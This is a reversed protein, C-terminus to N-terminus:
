IRCSTATPNFPEVHVYMIIDPNWRTRVTHEVRSAIDHGETVTIDPDVKIHVDIIASHGARRTKLNHLGRVGPVALIMLRIKEVEEPPLARELLENVSPRAIKIASVAIFIGILISVIPDLVRFKMGLFYAGSVGILTAVSSIADSRHHWANAALSSSGIEKGKAETMRFLWEKAVISVIAVIITWVDPRPLEHRHFFAIIADIGGWTIGVAVALLVFAIILSALTEYKGHGYPHDADASRYAVGVFILVIFDTGFDSLSHFGDAVLADSHGWYGFFLKLLMLAANVWFGIWTVRRIVAVENRIESSM